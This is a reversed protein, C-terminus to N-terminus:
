IIERGGITSATRTVCGCTRNGASEFFSGCAICKRVQIRIEPLGALKRAVNKQQIDKRISIPLVKVKPQSSPVTGQFPTNVSSGSDINSEVSSM